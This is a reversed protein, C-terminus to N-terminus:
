KNPPLIRWSRTYANRISRVRDPVANQLHGLYTGIANNFCLLRGALRPEFNRLDNELQSATGEWVPISDCYFIARDILGLLEMEPTSSQLEVMLSPNAYHTLGYRASILECPITWEELYKMFAPLQDELTKRFLAREDNTATPMPMAKKYTQFILLKDELSSDIKPLVALSTEDNLSLTLRWFPNLSIAQKYKGHCSHMINAAIAKLNEGFRQKDRYGTSTLEDEIILHETGFFDANFPTKGTMYRFPKGSRGGLISTLLDQWLSKGAEPPGAMIVCQGPRRQKSRLADFAIKIWALALPYQQEGFLNKMFAEIAWFDGQAPTILKPSDTVLVGQGSITHLGAWHGALPGVYDVKNEQQLKVIFKNEETKHVTSALGMWDMKQKLHLILNQQNVRMWTTDERKVWYSGSFHEYAAWDIKDSTPNSM